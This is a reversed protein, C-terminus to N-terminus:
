KGKKEREKEEWSRERKKGKRIKKKKRRNEKRFDLFKRPGNIVYEAIEDM